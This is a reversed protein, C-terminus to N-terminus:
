LTNAPHQARKADLYAAHAAEATAFSGVYEYKGNTVIQAVFHRRRKHFTVGLYGTTGNAQPGKMNQHNQAKAINRLNAMRNDSRDGNIHDVVHSPWCGYFYLWALRHALYLRKDIRIVRYGEGNICGALMGQRGRAKSIFVGTEHDYQVALKLREQKLDADSM